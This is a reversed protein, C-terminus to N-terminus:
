AKSICVSLRAAPTAPIHGSPCGWRHRPGWPPSVSHSTVLFPSPDESGLNDGVWCACIPGIPVGAFLCVFPTERKLEAPLFLGVAEKVTTECHPSMTTLVVPM